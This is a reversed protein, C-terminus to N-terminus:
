EEIQQLHILRTHEDILELHIHLFSEPILNAIKSAWEIFCTNGSDFYEEVGVDMAEFEDRLRYFDFHYYIANKQNAYENVISFTPSSVADLVGLQRCIEQILTTKGAGMEGDFIWIAQAGAFNIIQQAAQPLDELGSVQITQKADSNM